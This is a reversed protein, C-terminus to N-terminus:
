HCAVSYLGYQVPLLLTTDSLQNAAGQVQFNAGKFFVNAALCTSLTSPLNREKGVKHIGTGGM